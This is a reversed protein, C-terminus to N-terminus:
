LLALVVDCFADIICHYSCAALRSGVTGLGTAGGWCASSLYIAVYAGFPHLACNSVKEDPVAMVLAPQESQM